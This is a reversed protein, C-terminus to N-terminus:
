GTEVPVCDALEDDGVESGIGPQLAGESLATAVDNYCAEPVLFNLTREGGSSGLGGSEGEVITTVTGTVVPGAVGDEGAPLNLLLPSGERASDLQGGELPLALEAKGEPPEATGAYMGPTLVTGAGLPTTAFSGQVAGTADEPVGEFDTPLSVTDLDAGTIEEGQAVSAGEAIRLYDVRDSVQLALWASALAGGAVLLVGLAALAPRRERTSPLRNASPSAGTGRGPRRPAPSSTSM